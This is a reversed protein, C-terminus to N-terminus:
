LRSSGGLKDGKEVVICDAQSNKSVWIASSLGSMGGGIILVDTSITDLESFTM